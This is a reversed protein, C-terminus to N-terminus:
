NNLAEALETPTCFATGSKQVVLSAAVNGVNAADEVDWGASVGLALAAGATDGAGSLESVEVYRAPIHIGPAGMENRKLYMGKGGRTLLLSGCVMEKMIAESLDYIELTTDAPLEMAKAARKDNPKLITVRQYSHFHRLKPDAVTPIGAKNCETIVFQIVEPTLVGKDYDALYVINPKWMGIAQCISEIFQVALETGIDDTVESDERMLHHVGAMYRTKRSSPRSDTEIIYTCSITANELSDRLEQGTRDKGIVSVIQAEGGMAVVNMAVNGVCGPQMVTDEPIFIPCPAEPSIRDVRGRKYYDACIDGICLVKRGKMEGVKGLFDMTSGGAFQHSVTKRKSDSERHETSFELLAAPKNGICRFGHDVDSEIIVNEGVRMQYDKEPLTIWLQNEM